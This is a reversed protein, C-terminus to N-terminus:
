RAMSIKVKSDSAAATIAISSDVFMATVEKFGLEEAYALTISNAYTLYESELESSTNTLENSAQNINNRDVVAITLTAVSYLYFVVVVGLLSALIWFIKREINNLDLTKTTM